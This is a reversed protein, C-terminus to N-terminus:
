KKGIQYADIISLIWFVVIFGVILLIYSFDTKNLADITIQIVKSVQISGKQLPAAKIIASGTEIVMWALLLSVTLVPVLFVLARAYRKLYVHGWGPLLLANFLAAKKAKDM